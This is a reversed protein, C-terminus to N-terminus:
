HFDAFMDPESQTVPEEVSETPAETVQEEKLVYKTIKMPRGNKDVKATGDANLYPSIVKEFFDTSRKGTKRIVPAEMEDIEAQLADRKSTLEALKENLKTVQTFNNDVNQAIRKIQALERANLKKEM